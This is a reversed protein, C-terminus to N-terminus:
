SLFYVTCNRVGFQFCEATTDFYLDIRKNKIDGGCDEARAVGYVYDGDNSVIFVETGYPIVKPDVAIVGVRVSTGTATIDSCGTDTKTYATAKFEDVKHFNLVEGAATVLFGDGVSPINGNEGLQTGTGVAVIQSVAEQVQVTEINERNTEEGNTYEVWDRHELVGSVGPVLIVEEGEPLTPNYCIRTEFGTEERNVQECTIIVDETARTPAATTEEPVQAVQCGTLWLTALMLTFAVAKKAINGTANKM